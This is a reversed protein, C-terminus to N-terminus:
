LGQTKLRQFRVDTWVGSAKIIQLRKYEWADIAKSYDRNRIVTNKSINNEKAIRESTLHHKGNQTDGSQTHQNGKFKETNKEEEYRKGIFYRRQSDTLNRRALQNKIMWNKSQGINEFDMEQVKFPINNRTCIEYRNHGDIITNDWVILSDRCGEELISKELLQYEEQQLKPILEKLEENIKLM